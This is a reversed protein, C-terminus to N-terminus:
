RADRVVRGGKVVLAVADRDGFVKPDALPDATFAVLDARKGVEITGVEDAIGLIGANIRTASELALMPTEIGARLVLEQGRGAQDAGILDSGLGVRVGAARAALLGDIQGQIVPRVREEFHPDIGSATADAALAYAVALTPVLAVDQEALLAATPEDIASGHEVCRVGAAVANRIGANNHAHVTV